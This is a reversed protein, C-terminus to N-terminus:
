ILDVDKPPDNRLISIAIRIVWGSIVIVVFSLIGIIFKYVPHFGQTLRNIEAADGVFIDALMQAAGYSIAWIFILIFLKLVIEGIKKKFKM